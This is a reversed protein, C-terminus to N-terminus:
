SSYNIAQSHFLKYYLSDQKEMLKTHSDYDSIVGGDIVLIKDCFVSSSMRHSIYLATKEGVLHNFNEYIEAEALPDLASTPEDLIILSAEKNLARAIAVKQSEGGSMEIGEEDYSKGFLSKIGKPLTEVKETLGVKELLETAKKIDEQPEKCTINEEMTFAFLRYDQFVAAMSKM